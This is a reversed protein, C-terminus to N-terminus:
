GPHLIDGRLENFRQYVFAPSQIDKLTFRATATKKTIADKITLTIVARGKEDEVRDWFGTLTRLPTPYTKMIYASCQKAATLQERTQLLTESYDFLVSDLETIVVESKVPKTGKKSTTGAKKGKGKGEFAYDYWQDVRAIITNLSADDLPRCDAEQRLELEMREGELEIPQMVWTYWSQSEMMTFYFLVVPFPFPGYRSM